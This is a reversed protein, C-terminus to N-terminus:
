KTHGPYKKGIIESVPYKKRWLTPVPYKKKPGCTQFLIKKEDCAVNGCGPNKSLPDDGLQIVVTLFAGIQSFINYNERTQQCRSIIEM